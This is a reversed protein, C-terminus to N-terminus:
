HMISMKGDPFSVPKLMPLIKSVPMIIPHSMIIPVPAVSITIIM